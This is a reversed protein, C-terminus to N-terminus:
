IWASPLFSSYPRRSVGMWLVFGALTLKVGKLKQHGDTGEKADRLGGSSFVRVICVLFLVADTIITALAIALLDTMPVCVPNFQPRQMGVFVGGLALRAVLLGQPVFRQVASTAAGASAWLFYQLLAVRALQDFVSALAVAAQCGEPSSPDIATAVFAIQAWLAASALFITLVLRQGDKWLSTTKGRIM